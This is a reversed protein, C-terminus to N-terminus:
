NQDQEAYKQVAKLAKEMEDQATSINAGRGVIATNDALSNDRNGENDRTFGGCACQFTTTITAFRSTTSRGSKLDFIVAKGM